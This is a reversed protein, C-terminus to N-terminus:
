EPRVRRVAAAWVARSRVAEALAAPAQRAALGTPIDGRNVPSRRDRCAEPGGSIGLARPRIASRRRANEPRHRSLDGQGDRRDVPRGAPSPRTDRTRAGDQAGEPRASLRAPKEGARWPGAAI